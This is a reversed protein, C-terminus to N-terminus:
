LCSRGYRTISMFSRIITIITSFFLRFLSVVGRPLFTPSLLIVVFYVSAICVEVEGSM